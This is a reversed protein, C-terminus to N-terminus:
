NRARGRRLRIDIFAQKQQIKLKQEPKNQQSLNVSYQTCLRGTGNVEAPRMEIQDVTQDPRQQCQENREDDEGDTVDAQDARELLRTPQLALTTGAAATLRADRRGSGLGCGSASVASM